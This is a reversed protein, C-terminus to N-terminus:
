FWFRARMNSPFSQELFVLNLPLRFNQSHALVLLRCRSQRRLLCQLAVSLVAAAQSAPWLVLAGPFASAVGCLSGCCPLFSPHPGPMHVLDSPLKGELSLQLWWLRCFHFTGSSVLFFFFNFFFYQIQSVRLPSLNKKYYKNKNHKFTHTCASISKHM